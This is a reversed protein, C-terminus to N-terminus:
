LTIDASCLKKTPPKVYYYRMKLNSDKLLTHNHFCFYGKKGRKGTNSSGDEPEQENKHQKKLPEVGRRIFSLAHLYDLGDLFLAAGPGNRLLEIFLPFRL